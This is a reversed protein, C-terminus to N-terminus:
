INFNECKHSVDQIGKVNGTKSEVNANENASYNSMNMSKKSTSLEFM